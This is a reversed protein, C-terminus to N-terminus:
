IAAIASACVFSKRRGCSRGYRSLFGSRPRPSNAIADTRWTPTSACGNDEAERLALEKTAAYENRDGRADPCRVPIVRLAGKATMIFYLTHPAYAIGISTLEAAMRPDVAYFKQDLRVQDVVIDVVPRFGKKARFFENKPPAKAVAISMIGVAASGSANPLDRRLRAFELADEDLDESTAEGDPGSGSKIDIPQYDDEAAPPPKLAKAKAGRSARKAASAESTPEEPAEGNPKTTSPPVDHSPSTETQDRFTEDPM